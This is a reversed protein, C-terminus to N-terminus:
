RGTGSATRVAESDPGFSIRAASSLIAMLAVFLWVNAPVRFPSELLGHFMM